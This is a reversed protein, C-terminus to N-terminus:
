PNSLPRYDPLEPPLNPDPPPSAPKGGTLSCATTALLLAGIALLTIRQSTNKMLVLHM